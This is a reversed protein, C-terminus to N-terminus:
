QHLNAKLRNSIVLTYPEFICSNHLCKESITYIPQSHSVNTLPGYLKELEAHDPSHIASIQFWLKGLRQGEVLEPPQSLNFVM